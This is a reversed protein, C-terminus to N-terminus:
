DARLLAMLQVKIFPGTQYSLMVINILFVHVGVSRM